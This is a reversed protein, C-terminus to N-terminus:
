STSLARLLQPESNTKGRPTSQLDGLLRSEGKRHRNMRRSEVGPVERVGDRVLRERCPGTDPRCGYAGACADRPHPRTDAGSRIRDPGHRVAGFIAFIEGRSSTPVDRGTSRRDHGRAMSIARLVRIGSFIKLASSTRCFPWPALVALARPRAKGPSLAPRRFGPEPPPSRRWSPQRSVRWGMRLERVTQSLRFGVNPTGTFRHGFVAM